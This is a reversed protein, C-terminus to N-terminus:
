ITKYDKGHIKVLNTYEVKEKDSWINKKPKDVPTSTKKDKKADLCQLLNSM